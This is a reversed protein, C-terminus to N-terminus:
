LVFMMAKYSLFKFLPPVFVAEVIEFAEDIRAAASIGYRGRDPQEAAAQQGQHARGSSPL